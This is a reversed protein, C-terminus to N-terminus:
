KKALYDLISAIAEEPDNYTRTYHEVDPSIGKFGMIRGNEYQPFPFLFTRYERWLWLWADIYTPASTFGEVLASNCSGECFYTKEDDGYCKEEPEDYGREKLWLAVKYSVIMKSM